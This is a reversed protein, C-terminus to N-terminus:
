GAPKGQKSQMLAYRLGGVANMDIPHLRATTKHKKPNFIKDGYWKHMYDEVLGAGGVLIVSRFGRFQNFVGDGINNAIWEAYRERRKDLLPKLDIDYGAARLTYDGSVSGLRIVRDIDDVTLHAFDEGQKKITKLIPERIHTHTGGNEWTAHQLTEANFNGESFALADLTYAGIDLVAVEGELVNSPVFEGSDDLVLCAAAGIGEPLVSVKSYRWARPKKDGSLQIEVGGGKESFRRQIEPKLESYLGPPAFLTLDVEGEKVGLKALALAVLFQHFENGYRNSGMHRELGRRTVSLVSDGTAYRFGNWDVYELESEGIAGKGFNLSDGTAPARVSPEYHSKYGSGSKALVAKVGGNGADVSAIYHTM